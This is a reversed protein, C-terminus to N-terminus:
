VGSAMVAFAGRRTRRRRQHRSCCDGHGGPITCRARCGRLAAPSGTAELRGRWILWATATANAEVVFLGLGDTRADAQEGSPRWQLPERLTYQHHLLRPPTRACFAIRASAIICAARSPAAAVAVAVTDIDTPPQGSAAVATPRMVTKMPVALPPPRVVTLSMAAPLEIARPSSMEARWPPHRHVAHLVPPVPFHEELRSLSNDQPHKEHPDGRCLTRVPSFPTHTNHKFPPPLKVENISCAPNGHVGKQRGERRTKTLHELLLPQCCPQHRVYQVPRPKLAPNMTSLPRVTALMTTNRLM